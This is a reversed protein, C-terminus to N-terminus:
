MGIFPYVVDIVVEFYVFGVVGFHVQDVIELYELDRVRLGCNPV